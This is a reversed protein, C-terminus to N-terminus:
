EYDRVAVGVPFRPVGDDSLEQFRVTLMKGVLRPADRLMRAREALTGTPRVRFEKSESTGTRCVFVVTGRDKGSAEEFGVIEFERDLFSKLKLLGSSRKGPLYPARPDRLMVGEYGEREHRKLAADVDAEGACPKSPVPRLRIRLRSSASAFLSDLLEARESTPMDPRAPDYLDYIWYQLDGAAASTDKANRAMSVIKQFGARHAYLEGDLVLHHGQAGALALLERIPGAFLPALHDFPKGTRSYLRVSTDSRDSLSLSALMRVGDLKPQTICPFRLHKRRADDLPHALMPLIPKTMKTM